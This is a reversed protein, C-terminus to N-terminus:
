TKQITTTGVNGVGASDVIEAIWMNTILVILTNGAQFILIIDGLKM